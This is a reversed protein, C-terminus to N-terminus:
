NPLGIHVQNETEVLRGYKYGEILVHKEHENLPRKWKQELYYIVENYFIPNYEFPQKM